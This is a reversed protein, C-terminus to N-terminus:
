RQQHQRHPPTAATTATLAYLRLIKMCTVFRDKAQEADGKFDLVFLRKLHSKSSPELYELVVLRAKQEPPLSAVGPERTLHETNGSHSLDEYSYVEQLSSM